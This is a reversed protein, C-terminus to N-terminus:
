KKSPLGEVNIKLNKFEFDFGDRSFIDTKLRAGKTNNGVLFFTTKARYHLWGDDRETSLNLMRYSKYFNMDAGQIKFENYVVDLDANNKNLYDFEVDVYIKEFDYKLELAGLLDLNNVVGSHVSVSDRNESYINIVHSSKKWLYDNQSVFRDLNLYRRLYETLSDKVKEDDIKEVVLSDSVKFFRDRDVLYDGHLYEIKEGSNRIFAVSQRCRYNVATDLSTGLWHCEKDCDYEYNNSLYATLTPAIDHQTVVAKFTKPEKLLRSYIILPVNYKLLPNRNVYVRGMRHDGLIVFVTNEFEPQNKYYEFLMKLCDDMYLFSAYNDKNNLVNNKEAPGFSATEAVMEEVKRVYKESGRFIYPEHTSLTIYIDTNPRNRQTSERHRIAAKFMDEDYMGWCHEKQMKEKQEADFDQEGPKMIFGIGNSSMYEDQGDFSANGGYYFSSSYGNQTMEKLISNHDPIPMWKNAFGRGSGFPASSFINPVVGFTREALALCNPWYLSEKKLSDLFPTFSMKPRDSTLRQGLSEVIVFVFDPAKGDSTVNLLDGLVDPDDTKRMFPYHIDVYNRDPFLRQYDLADELVRADYSTYDDTSSIEEWFDNLTYAVQNVALCYDQYTEYKKDNNILSKFDFIVVFLIAVVFYSLSFLKSFGVKKCWFRVFVVYLVVAAVVILLPLITFDVSSVVIDYLEPLSYVLFIRNLPQSESSFYGILLGYLVVYLTIFAVSLMSATKKSLRNIILYPILVIVGTEIVVALDFYFGSLVTLFATWQIIGTGLLAFFFSMRLVFSLILWLVGYKTWKRLGDHLFELMMKAKEVNEANKM